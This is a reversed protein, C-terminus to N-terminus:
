IRQRKWYEKQLEKVQEALVDNPGEVETDRIVHQIPRSIVRGKRKVGFEKLWEALQQSSSAYVIRGLKVQGHAAACMPCHEGSTYVTAQKREAETLHQGAWRAINFEPHQTHDGGSVHNHDEFLVEGEKSVLVSGFPQDGKELAEEALAIARRLFKIDTANVM